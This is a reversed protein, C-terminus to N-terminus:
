ILIKIKERYTDITAFNLTFDKAYGFRFNSPKLIVMRVFFCITDLSIVVGRLYYFLDRNSGKIEFDM